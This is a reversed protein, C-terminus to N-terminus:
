RYFQHVQMKLVVKAAMNQVHQLKAIHKEPFGIMIANAYDLNSIVTAFVATHCAETTLFHRINVIKFINWITTKCKSAIHHHLHLNHDICVGWTSSPNVTLFLNGM